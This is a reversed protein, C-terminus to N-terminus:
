FQFYLFPAAEAAMFPPVLAASLGYGLAFVPGPLRAIWPQLVKRSALVHTLTLALALLWFSGPAEGPAGAQQGLLTRLHLLALEVSPARFFVAATTVTAFTLPVGLTHVVRTFRPWRAARLTWERHAILLLGLLGGWAVFHWAAGHWLGVLLMTLLVKLYIRAASGRGSLSLPLLVYDRFWSSLSIHWRSWFESINRALYPFDFNLPLRYGLLGATGLAMDSYGSFDCYFQVAYAFWAIWAASPGFSEPQAWYADVVTALRDAICAKKIFGVLFLVLAGRVDVAAWRVPAKLQPLFERARVIPGAVLQPFFAVFLAFDRLSNEAPARRAYVDLTYSLTQFTYFSIGLPLVLDLTAPEVTVGLRALAIAGSEVFFDWYKFAGLLGLNGALSLWLWARRQAPRQERELSRGVVYDLATSFLLLGLFRWDWFAYFAWSALLLLSKRAGAGRLGWHVILVLVLFPLFVPDTFIM